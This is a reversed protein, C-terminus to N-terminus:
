QMRIWEAVSPRQNTDVVTLLYYGPPAVFTNAPPVVSISWTGSVSDFTAPGALALEVYRQDPDFAHTSSGHRILAVRDVGAAADLTVEFDISPQDYFYPQTVPDTLTSKVIEPRTGQFFYPPSFVEVTHLDPLPLERGGASFARGDPLLGAVSHYRREAAAAGMLEWGAGPNGFVEVTEYREAQTTGFCLDGSPGTQTQLGGVVLISGDLLIVANHNTRAYILDPVGADLWSGTSSPGVMKEVSGNVAGACVPQSATQADDAGGILYVVETFVGTADDWTIFHM